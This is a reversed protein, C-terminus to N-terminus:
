QEIKVSKKKLSEKEKVYNDYVEGLKMYLKELSDRIDIQDSAIELDSMDMYQAEYDGLIGLYKERLVDKKYQKDLSGDEPQDHEFKLLEKQTSIETQFRERTEDVTQQDEPDCELIPLSVKDGTKERYGKLLSLADLILANANANIHRGEVLFDDEISLVTNYYMTAEGHLNEPNGFRKKIETFARIGRNRLDLVEEMERKVKLGNLHLTRAKYFDVAIDVLSMGELESKFYRTEELSAKFREITGLPIPDALRLKQEEASLWEETEKFGELWKKRNESAVELDKKGNELLRNEKPTEQKKPKESEMKTKNNRKRRREQTRHINYCLFHYLALTHM